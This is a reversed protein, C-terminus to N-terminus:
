QLAQEYINALQGAIIGWDYRKEVLTRANRSIRNWLNPSQLLALVSEAFIECNDSILINKGNNVELGECGISTSVVPVGLAM